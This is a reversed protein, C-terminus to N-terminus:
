RPGRMGANGLRLVRAQRGPSQTPAKTLEVPKKHPGHANVRLVLAEDLSVEGELRLTRAWDLDLKEAPIPVDSLLAVCVTLEPALVAAAWLRLSERHARAQARDEAAATPEDLVQRREVREREEPSLRM